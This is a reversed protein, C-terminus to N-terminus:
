LSLGFGDIIRREEPTLSDLTVGEAGERVARQLWGFVHKIIVEKPGREDTLWERLDALAAPGSRRWAERIIADAEERTMGALEPKRSILGRLSSAANLLKFPIQDNQRLRDSLMAVERQCADKVAENALEMLSAWEDWNEALKHWRGWELLKGLWYQAVDLLASEVLFDFRKHAEDLIDERSLEPASTNEM